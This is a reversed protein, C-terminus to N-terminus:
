TGGSSRSPTPPWKRWTRRSTTAWTNSIPSYLYDDKLYISYNTINCETIMKAVGSWIEAHYEKYEELREPRIKLVMGCRQSAAM